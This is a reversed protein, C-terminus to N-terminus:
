TNANPAAIAEKYSSLEGVDTDNVYDLNPQYFETPRRVCRSRKPSSKTPKIEEIPEPPRDINSSGDEPTRNSSEGRCYSKLSTM